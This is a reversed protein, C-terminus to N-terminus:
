EYKIILTTGADLTATALKKEEGRHITISDLHAASLNVTGDENPEVFSSSAIRLEIKEDTVQAVEIRGFLVSDYIVTGAALDTFVTVTPEPQEQSWGTWPREIVTLAPGADVLVVDSEETPAETESVDSPALLVNGSETKACAALTFLVAVSLLLALVKKMKDNERVDKYRIISYYM